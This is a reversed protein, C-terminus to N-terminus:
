KEVLYDLSVGIAVFGLALMWRRFM